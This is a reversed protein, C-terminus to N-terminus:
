VATESKSDAEAVTVSSSESANSTNGVATVPSSVTSANSDVQTEKKNKDKERSTEYGTAYWGDGKLQFGTTSILKQLAPKACTRCDVLPADKISQFVELKVGCATCAYEYIPM